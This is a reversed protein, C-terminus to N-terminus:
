EIGEYLEKKWYECHYLMPNFLGFFKFKGLNVRNIKRFGFIRPVVYTVIDSKHSFCYVEKCCGKLYKKTKRRVGFKMKFPNVSGYTFLHSEIGFNYNLDQACLQAMASGLSWGIVEIEATPHDKLYGQVADRVAHKMAQYMRAWGM